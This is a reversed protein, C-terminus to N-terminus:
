EYKKEIIRGIIALQEITSKGKRLGCQYVGLCEESYRTLRALLIKSFVKYVTNVLVIGRYNHCDTRDGKKYLPIITAENWSEPM